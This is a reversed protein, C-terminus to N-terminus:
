QDEGYGAAHLVARRAAIVAPEPADVGAVPAAALAFAAKLGCRVQKRIAEDAEGWAEFVLEGVADLQIETPEWTSENAIREFDEAIMEDTIEIPM